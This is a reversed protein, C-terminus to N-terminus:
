SILVFSRTFTATFGWQKNSIREILLATTICLILTIVFGAILVPVFGKRDTPDMKNERQWMPGFLIRSYWVAGFVFCAVSAIMVWMWNLNLFAHVM